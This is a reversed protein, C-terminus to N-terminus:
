PNLIYVLMGEVQFGYPKQRILYGKNFLSSPSYFIGPSLRLQFRRGLDAIAGTKAEMVMGWESLSNFFSLDSFYYGNNRVSVRQSYLRTVRLGVGNNMRLWHNLQGTRRVEASYASYSYVVNASAPDLSQVSPALTVTANGTMPPSSMVETYHYRQYGLGLWIEWKRDIELGVKLGYGYSFFPKNFQKRQALYSSVYDKGHLSDYKQDRDPNETLTFRIIQPDTHLGLLFRYRKWTASLSPAYELALPNLQTSFVEHRSSDSVTFNRQELFVPSVPSQEALQPQPLSNNDFPDTEPEASEQVLTSGPKPPQTNEPHQLASPANTAATLPRNESRRRVGSSSPPDSAVANKARDSASRPEQEVRRPTSTEAAESQRPPAAHPQVAATKAALNNPEVSQMLGYGILLLLALSASGGFLWYFM